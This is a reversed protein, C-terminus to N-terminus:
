AGPALRASKAAVKALLAEFSRAFGAVGEEQLQKEVAELDIGLAALAALQEHAADLGQALTSAVTGHDLFAELTAPPLTNVTRGGILADVYLTDPYAPNKTSTSAWLLRQARAGERELASWRPGSFIEQMLGYAAKACAIAITGQLHRAGRAELLADVASDIRSVFFSAVSAVQRASGGAALWQALGAIYAEAVARYAGLGFILTVNVSVGQRILATIAAIGAPTAPVKIMLNPRDVARWLRLAEAITGQTDHALAPSVELSVYGDEGASEEYVPRLLDAARQIDEVMLTEAIQAAGMGRAALAEIAADYDTSGVIAKEFISPNSTVGRIGAQILAALGGSELLSRHINDYWISQGLAALAHLKTMTEEKVFCTM